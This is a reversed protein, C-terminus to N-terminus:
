AECRSLRSLYSNSTIAQSVRHGIEEDLPAEDQHDVGHRKM